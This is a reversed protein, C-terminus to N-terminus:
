RAYIEEWATHKYQMMRFVFWPYVERAFKFKQLADERIYGGKVEVFGLCDPWAVFFDPTYYSRDALKLKIREFQWARLAGCQRDWELIQAYRAETQNMGRYPDPHLPSPLGAERLPAQRSKLTKFETETLRLM